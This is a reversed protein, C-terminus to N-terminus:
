PVRAQEQSRYWRVTRALGEAIAVPPLWGLERRTATSDVTLSDCLRAIQAGRGALAGLGRLVATPVPFLRAPRQMAGAIRRVLEPTSFDEGDCVMWIRGSAAAHTLVRQLLDCLNWVSVLSRRNNIAALPLPWGREVWNMLRLFNAKVGPGYVLPSRVIAVGTTSGAAAEFAYKEGLWKSKGYADQPQPEDLARYPQAAGEGNVKVSSLYVFRDVGARVAASALRQTGHANTDLYLQLNEGAATAHARAAAHVVCQVGRLAVAWDATALDGIAVTEAVQLGTCDRTRVAARVEYGSRTLTDCLVRGVFGTAGTVLVRTM